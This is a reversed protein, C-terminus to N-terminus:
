KLEEADKLNVKFAEGENMLIHGSTYPKGDLTMIINEVNFYSGFTNCIATITSSEAGGGLNQSSVFNSSFDLIITSNDSDLKWSNLTIESSLSAAVDTNPSKKLENILSSVAEDEKSAEITTNIYVIKDSIADYYYINAKEEKESEKNSDKESTDSNNNKSSTSDNNASASNNVKNEQPAGNESINKCSILSFPIFLSLLIALINKKM